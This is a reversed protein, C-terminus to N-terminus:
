PTGQSTHSPYISQESRYVTDAGVVFETADTVHFAYEASLAVKTKSSRTLQTGGLDSGDASLYGAPYKAPNYIANLNLTFGDVPQGFIDVEIGKTKVGSVNTPLTTAPVAKGPPRAMALLSRM